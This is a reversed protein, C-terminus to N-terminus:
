GESAEQEIELVYVSTALKAAALLFYCCFLSESAREVTNNDVSHSCFSIRTDM